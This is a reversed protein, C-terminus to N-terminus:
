RLDKREKVLVSPKARLAEVRRMVEVIGVMRSVM